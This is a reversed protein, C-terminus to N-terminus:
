DCFKTQQAQQEDETEAAWNCDLTFLGHGPSLTINVHVIEETPCWHFMGDNFIVRSSRGLLWPLTIVSWGGNWNVTVATIVPDIVDVAVTVVVLSRLPVMTKHRSPIPISASWLLVMFMTPSFSAHVTAFNFHAKLQAFGYPLNCNYIWVIYKCTGLQFKLM